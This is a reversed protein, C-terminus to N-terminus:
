SCEKRKSKPITCYALCVPHNSNVSLPSVSHVHIHLDSHWQCATGDEQIRKQQVAQFLPQMGHCGPDILRHDATTDRMNQRRHDRFIGHIVPVLHGVQKVVDPVNNKKDADGSDARQQVQIQDEIHLPAGAPCLGPVLPHQTQHDGQAQQPLQNQRNGILLGGIAGIGQAGLGIGQVQGHHIHHHHHRSGDNAIVLGQVQFLAIHQQTGNEDEHNHGSNLDAEGIDQEGAQPDAQNHQAKGDIGLVYMHINGAVGPKVILLAAPLNELLGHEAAPGEPHPDVGEQAPVVGDPIGHLAQPLGQRFFLAPHDAPGQRVVQQHHNGHLDPPLGPLQRLQGGGGAGLVQGHNRFHHVEGSFGGHRLNDIPGLIKLIPKLLVGELPILQRPHKAPRSEDPLHFIHHFHALGKGEQHRIQVVKLLHIVPKAM